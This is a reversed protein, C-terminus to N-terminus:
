YGLPVPWTKEPFPEVGGFFVDTENPHRQLVDTDSYFGNIYFFWNCGTIQRDRKTRKVKRLKGCTRVRRDHYGFVVRKLHWNRAIQSLYVPDKGTIHPPTRGGGGSVVAWPPPEHRPVYDTTYTSGSARVPLQLPGRPDDGRRGVVLYHFDADYERIYRQKVWRTLRRIYRARRKLFQERRTM